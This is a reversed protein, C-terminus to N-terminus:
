HSEDALKDFPVGKVRWLEVTLGTVRKNGDRVFTIIRGDDPTRLQMIFVDATTPALAELRRNNVQLFLRGDRVSFTYTAKLEESYYRGVYEGLQKADPKVLQVPELEVNPGGDGELRVNFRKNPRREFVLTHTGKHPGEVSRFRTPSLARWRDTEGVRDALVLGGKAASVTWIM